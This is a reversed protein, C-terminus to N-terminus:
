GAVALRSWYEREAEEKELLTKLLVRLADRYGYFESCYSWLILIEPDEKSEKSLQAVGPYQRSVLVNHLLKRVLEIRGQLHILQPSTVEKEQMRPTQPSSSSSSSPSKNVAPGPVVAKDTRSVTTSHESLLGELKGELKAELKGELKAELKGELKAELKTELKTELKAELMAELKAEITALSKESAVSEALQSTTKVLHELGTTVGEGGQDQSQRAMALQHQQDVWIRQLYRMEDAEEKQLKELYRILSGKYEKVDTTLIWAILVGDYLSSDDEPLIPRVAITHARSLAERACKMKGRIQILLPSEMMEMRLTKPTATSVTHIPTLRALSGPRNAPATHDQSSPTSSQYNERDAKNTAQTHPTPIPTARTNGEQLLQLRLHQESRQPSQHRLTRHQQLRILPSPVRTTDRKNESSGRSILQQDQESVNHRGLVLSSTSHQQNSMMPSASRSIGIGASVTSSSITTTTSTTTTTLRSGTQIQIGGSSRRSPGGGGASSSGSVYGAEGASENDDLTTMSGGGTEFNIGSLLGTSRQKYRSGMPISAHGVSSKSFPVASSSRVPHQSYEQQNMQVQQQYQKLHTTAHQHHYHQRHQRGIYGDDEDDGDGGDPSWGERDDASTAFGSATHSMGSSTGLNVTSSPASISGDQHVFQQQKYRSMPTLLPSQGTTTYSRSTTLLSPMPVDDTEEEPIWGQKWATPQQQQQHQQQFPDTASTATAPTTSGSPNFFNPNNNTNPTLSSANHSGNSVGSWLGSLNLSSGSRATLEVSSKPPKKLLATNIVCGETPAQNGRGAFLSQSDGSFRKKNIRFFKPTTRPPHSTNHGPQSRHYGSEFAGATNGTEPISSLGSTGFSGAPTGGHHSMTNSMAITTTTNSSGDYGAITISEIMEENRSEMPDFI